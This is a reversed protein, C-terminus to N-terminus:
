QRSPQPAGPEVKDETTLEPHIRLEMEDFVPVGPITGKEMEPM